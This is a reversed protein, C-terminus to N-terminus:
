DEDDDELLSRVQRIKDSIEDHHKKWARLTKVYEAWQFLNPSELNPQKPRVEDLIDLQRQLEELREWAYSM